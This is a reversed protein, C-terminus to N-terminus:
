IKLWSYVLLTLITAAVTKFFGVGADPVGLPVTTAHDGGVWVRIDKDTGNAAVMVERTGIPVGDVIVRGTHADNTVLLGDVSVAVDSAPPAFLLVLTSTPEGHISPYHAVVDHACGAVTAALAVAALM